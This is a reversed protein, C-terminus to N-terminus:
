KGKKLEKVIAYPTVQFSSGTRNILELIWRSRGKSFVPISDLVYPFSEGGTQKWGASIIITNRFTTLNAAYVTNPPVTVSPYVSRIFGEGLDQKIRANKAHLTIRKFMLKKM